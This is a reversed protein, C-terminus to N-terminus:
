FLPAATVPHFVVSPLEAPYQHNYAQELTFINEEDNQGQTGYLVGGIVLTAVVFLIIMTTKMARGEERLKLYFTKKM